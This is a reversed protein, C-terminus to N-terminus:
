KCFGGARVSALLTNCNANDGAAAVKNCSDVGSAPLTPCCTALATCGGLDGADLLGGVDVGGSDTGADSSTTSCESKCNTDECTTLPSLCSQCTSDPLSKCGGSVWSSCSGGSGFCAGYQSSCKAQMCSSCASSGSGSSSGTCTGTTNGSDSSSSCAGAGFAVLASIALASLISRTTM